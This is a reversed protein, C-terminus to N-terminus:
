LMRISPGRRSPPPPTPSPQAPSLERDERGQSLTRDPKEDPPDDPFAEEAQGLSDIEALWQTMEAEAQAAEEAKAAAAEQKDAQEMSAELAACAEGLSLRGQKTGVLETDILAVAKHMAEASAERRLESQALDPNRGFRYPDRSALLRMVMTENFRVEEHVVEGQYLKTVTYGNVARATANDAMVQAAHDLATDWAFRFAYGADTKRLAYASRRSMGVEKAAESVCGTEALADIFARQREATWGDHRKRRAAPRFRAVGPREQDAVMAKLERTRKKDFLVQGGRRQRRSPDPPAPTHKM